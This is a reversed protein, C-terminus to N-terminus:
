YRLEVALYPGFARIRAHEVNDGEVDLGIFEASRWGGVLVLHGLRVSAEGGYEAIGGMRGFVHASLLGLRWGLRLGVWGFLSYVISHERQSATAIETRAAFGEVGGELTLFAYARDEPSDMSVWTLEAGVIAYEIDISTRVSSGATWSAGEFTFDRPLLTEAEFELEGVTLWIRLDSAELSLTLTLEPAFGRDTEGLGLDGRVRLETGASSPTDGEVRGGATAKWAQVRAEFLVAAREEPPPAAPHQHAVLAFALGAFWSVALIM